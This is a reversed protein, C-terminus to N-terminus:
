IVFPNPCNCEKAVRCLRRRLHKGMNFKNDPPTVRIRRCVSTRQNRHYHIIRLKATQPFIFHLCNAVPDCIECITRMGVADEEIGKALGQYAFDVIPFVGAEKILEAIKKWQEPSPDVGTPNHCCGHLLVVDGKSAKNLSDLMGDFDLTKSEPNYYKYKEIDWGANGFIGTHNAWTPDSVWLKANPQIKKLVEGAIRLAGTGGPSQATVARGNAIISSGEGFLLKQVVQGYESSGGIPLYTKSDLKEQLIKEAKKDAEFIPTVGDANKYIGVGLNVKDPNADKKFAETLGLIADAPLMEVNEFM